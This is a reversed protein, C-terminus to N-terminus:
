FRRGFQLQRCIVNLVAPFCPCLCVRLASQKYALKGGTKTGTKGGDQVTVTYRVIDGDIVLIDEISTHLIRSLILFNDLNPLSRGSLWKYVAQPSEFGMAEQIDKVSYGNKRLLEKMRRGTAEQQISLYVPKM